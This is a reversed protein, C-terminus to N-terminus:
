IESSAARSRDDTTSRLRGRCRDFFRRSARTKGGKRTSLITTCLLRRWRPRFSRICTGQGWYPSLGYYGYFPEWHERPSAVVLAPDYAPSHVIRERTERVRV